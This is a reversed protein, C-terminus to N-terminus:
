AAVRLRFTILLFTSLNRLTDDNRHNVGHLGCRRICTSTNGHRTHGPYDSVLSCLEVVVVQKSTKASITLYMHKKKNTRKSLSPGRHNDCYQKAASGCDSNYDHPTNQNNEVPVCTLSINKCRIIHYQTNITQVRFRFHNPRSSRSSM